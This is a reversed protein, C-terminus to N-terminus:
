YAQDKAQAATFQRLSKQKMVFNTGDDLVQKPQVIMHLSCIVLINLLDAM